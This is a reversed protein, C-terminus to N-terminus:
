NEMVYKEGNITISMINDINIDKIQVQNETLGSEAQKYSYYDRKVEYERLIDMQERDAKIGDIFVESNEFANKMKYFRVYTAGSKLSELFYPFKIWKKGKLGESEFNSKEGMEKTARNNVSNEYINGFQLQTETVRVVNRGYLVNSQERGGKNMKINSKYTITVITNGKISNLANYIKNEM